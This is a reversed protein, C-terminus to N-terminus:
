KLIFQKGNWDITCTKQTDNKQLLFDAVHNEIHEEICHRVDRGGTGKEGVCEVLYKKARKTLSFTIKHEKLLAIIESLRLDIIKELDDTSLPHFVAIHDIRSLLESHFVDKADSLFKEQVDLSSASNKEKTFGLSTGANIKESGLNSTLIIITHSFDVKKGAADTLTGDELIQLLIHTIKSHAKEIEDFLIVSFPRQRVSETLRGGEKYGIYGSPSGVLRSITFSESFESMDLKILGEPGCLEYSLMKAFETKGVGSPGLFLFSACPRNKKALGSKARRITASVNKKVHDQGIIKESFIAELNMLREKEKEVMRSAPIGTALSVIHAIDQPEVTGLWEPVTEKSQMDLEALLNRFIPKELTHSSIKGNMNELFLEIKKRVIEVESSQASSVTHSSEIKIKAAAEDLLDLAKDPLFKESIYRDSLNVAAHLAEQSIRVRHYKEYYPALGSLITYSEERSPQAVNIPQFRRELAPDEEINKKYEQHTTAGICRLEGRALAPKLIQAADLSGNPSGAGVLTHIEDIFLIAHENHIIEDLLHQLRMELEGRFASGAVLSMLNLSYIKKQKLIDPVDGSVIKKALGEVIATKGVGPPGLLVPNNKTRRSIIQILRTIEKERGIVPDFKAAENPDTLHTTFYDLAQQKKNKERLPATTTGQENKEQPDHAESQPFLTELIESFKTSSKLIGVLENKILTHDIHAEHLLHHISKNDSELLSMFLHETGIHYHNYTQAINAADTILTRSTQSLSLSIHVDNNQPLNKKEIKKQNKKHLGLDTLFGEAQNTLSYFLHLPEIKDKKQFAALQAAQVLVRRLEWTFQQVVHM